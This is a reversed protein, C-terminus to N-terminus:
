IMTMSYEGYPLTILCLPIKCFNLWFPMLDFNESPIRRSAVNALLDVDVNQYHPISFIKFAQFSPLLDWVEWQYRTLRSAVFHNLNQVQKVIIESDGFVKM